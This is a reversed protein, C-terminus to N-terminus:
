SADKTDGVVVDVEQRVAAVGGEFTIMHVGNNGSISTNSSSARPTRDGDIKSMSSLVTAPYSSSSEMPSM